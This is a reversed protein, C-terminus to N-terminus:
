EALFTKLETLLEAKVNDPVSSRGKPKVENVLDAM